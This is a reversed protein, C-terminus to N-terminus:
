KAASGITKLYEKRGDPIRRSEVCKRVTMTHTQPDLRKETLYPLVEDWNKALATAFYWARMMNVYYEDSVTEAVAKAYEDRFAGGLYHCMLMGIGFRVTYVADSAMWERIMPYLGAPRKAFVAPRLQDCTAWNDVYPLFANVAGACESFDRIGSIIFAHLNNEDYYEHPLSRIFADGAATGAMERALRRLEPTRVGIMRSSGVTPMLRLQFDRYVPDALYRLAAKVDTDAM